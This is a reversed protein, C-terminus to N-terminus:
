AKVQGRRRTLVAAAGHLVSTGLRGATHLADSMAELGRELRGRYLEPDRGFLASATHTAEYRERWRAFTARAEPASLHFERVLRPIALYMSTVGSERMADLFAFCRPDHQQM